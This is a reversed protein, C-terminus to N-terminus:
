STRSTRSPAEPAGLRAAIIIADGAYTALTEAADLEAESWGTGHGIYLNLSAALEPGAAIPLSLSASVGLACATEAWNGAASERALDDLQVQEDTRAASLCPGEGLRYQLEDLRLARRDSCAATFPTGRDIMTISASECCEVLELALETTADLVDQVGRAEVLLDLLRATVPEAFRGLSAQM